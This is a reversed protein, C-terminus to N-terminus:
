KVQLKGVEIVAPKFDNSNYGHNTVVVVLDFEGAAPYTYTCYWGESSLTTKLGQAGVLGYDSYLDSKVLVPHNFMDVSDAFVGNVSVKKKMIVRTGGPWVSCMDADTDVVIKVAKGKVPQTVLSDKGNSDNVYFKVGNLSPTAIIDEKLCSTLLVGAFLGLTIKCIINKM